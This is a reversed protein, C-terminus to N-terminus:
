QPEQPPSGQALNRGARKSSGRSYVWFAAVLLGGAGVLVLGLDLGQIAYSSTGQKEYYATLSGNGVVDVTTSPSTPQTLNTVGGTLFWSNFTYGACAPASIGFQGTLVTTDKGNGAQSGNFVFPCASPASQFNVVYPTPPGSNTITSNAPPPGFVWTANTARYSSYTGEIGGFFLLGVTPTTSILSAGITASSPSPSTFFISWHGKVFLWTDGFIAGTTTNWGGFLVMIGQAPDYAMASLIRGEPASGATSSLNTWAGHAYSWTYALDNGFELSPVPTAGGFVLVYHTSPDYAMAPALLPPPHRALSLNTWQGGQFTWTDSHIDTQSSMGGYMLLYGDLPDWVMGGLGRASPFVTPSLETWTGNQFAWTDHYYLTGNLTLYPGGGFLLVYGDSYDYAMYEGLRATPGPINLLKWAGNEFIWTDAFTTNAATTLNNIGGFLVVYGTAPDYTMGAGGRSPPPCVNRACLKAWGLSGTSPGTVVHAACGDSLTGISACVLPHGGAPGEGQALTRQAGGLVAEAPTLAAMGKSPDTPGYTLPVLSGLLIVLALSIAGLVSAMGQCTM